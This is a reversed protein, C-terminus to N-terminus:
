ACAHTARAPDQQRRPNSIVSDSHKVIVTLESGYKGVLAQLAARAEATRGLAHLALAVGTLRTAEDPEVECEKLADAADHKGLM